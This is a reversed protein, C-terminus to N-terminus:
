KEQYLVIGSYKHELHGKIVKVDLIEYEPHRKAFDNIFEELDEMFMEDFLRVQKM